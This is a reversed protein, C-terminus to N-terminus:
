PILCAATIAGVVLHCAGLYVGVSVNGESVMRELDGMKLHVGWYIALQLVFAIAGWVLVDVVLAFARHGLLAPACDLWHGPSRCHPQSMASRILAFEPYPTIRTFIFLFAAGMSLAVSLYIATNLLNNLMQQIKGDGYIVRRLTM